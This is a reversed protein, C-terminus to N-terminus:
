AKIPKTSGGLMRYLPWGTAQSRIDWLAIDLGSLAMAAAAGTGHSALQMKYVRAWVGNVDFAEM